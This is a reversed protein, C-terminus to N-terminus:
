RGSARQLWSGEGEQQRTPCFPAHKRWLTAPRVRRFSCRPGFSCVRSSNFLPCVDSAYTHRRKPCSQSSLERKKVPCNAALHQTSDCVHCCAVAKARGTFFRTYLDVDVKSWERNGTAAAAVRFHTDYARWQLGDYQQAAKIITLQCNM